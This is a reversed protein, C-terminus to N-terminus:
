PRLRNAEAATPCVSPHVSRRVSSCISASQPLRQVGTTQPHSSVNTSFDGKHLKSSLMRSDIDSKILKSGKYTLDEESLEYLKIRCKETLLMKYNNDDLYYGEPLRMLLTLDM